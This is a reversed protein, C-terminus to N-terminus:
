QNNRPAMPVDKLRKEKINSIKYYKVEGNQLYSVVCQNPLLEFPIKTKQLTLKNKHEEKMDSSLIVDETYAPKTIFRAYYLNQNQSSLMIKASKEKFYVSDLQINKNNEGKIPIFLTYSSELDRVAQAKKQFYVDSFDLPSKQELKQASSCQSFSTM